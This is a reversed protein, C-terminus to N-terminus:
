NIYLGANLGVSLCKLIEESVYAKLRFVRTQFMKSPPNTRAMVTLVILVSM